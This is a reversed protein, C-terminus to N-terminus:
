RQRRGAARGARHDADAGPRRQRGGPHGPYRRDSSTQETTVPSHQANRAARGTACRRIPSVSSAIRGTGEAIQPDGHEDSAIDDGMIKVLLLRDGARRTTLKPLWTWVAEADQVAGSNNPGDASKSWDIKAKGTRNWTPRWCRETEPALRGSVWPPTAWSSSCSVCMQAAAHLHGSRVPAKPGRHRDAAHGSGPLGRRGWRWLPRLCLARINPWRERFNGLSTPDFGPYDTPLNLAVQWRLDFQLRQVAEEDSVDDHFQLLLVGSLISPPLSPRGNGPDYMDKLDDDQFLVDSVAAMRGYFSDNPVRHPLNAASFLSHQPDRRGLMACEQAYPNANPTVQTYRL